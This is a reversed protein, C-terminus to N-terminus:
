PVLTLPPEPEDLHTQHSLNVFASMINEAVEEKRTWIIDENLAWWGVPNDAYSGLSDIRDDRLYGTPEVSSEPHYKAWKHWEPLIDEEQEDTCVFHVDEIYTPRALTQTVIKLRNAARLIRNGSRADAGVGFEDDIMESM